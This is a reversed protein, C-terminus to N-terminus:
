GQSSEEHVWVTMTAFLTPVVPEDFGLDSGLVVVHHAVMFVAVIGCTRDQHLRQATTKGMLAASGHPLEHESSLPATCKRFTWPISELM